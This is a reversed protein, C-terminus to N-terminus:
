VVKQYLSANMYLQEISSLSPYKIITGVKLDQPKLMNNYWLLIWWYQTDGYINYSLLDPREEEARLTYNGSLPLKPIESLFYSSLCDFVGDEDFELFKAMDYKDITITENDIYYM